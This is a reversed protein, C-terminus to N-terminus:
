RTKRFTQIVTGLEHESMVGPKRNGDRLFKMFRLLIPEKEPKAVHREPFKCASTSFPRECYDCKGERRLQRRRRLEERLKSEPMEDLDLRYSM